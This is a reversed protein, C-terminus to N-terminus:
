GNIHLQIRFVAVIFVCDAAAQKQLRLATEVMVRHKEEAPIHECQCQSTGSARMALIHRIADASTRFFEAFSKIVGIEGM